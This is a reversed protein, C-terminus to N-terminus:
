ITSFILSDFSYKESLHKQVRNWDVDLRISYAPRLALYDLSYVIGIPSMEGQLAKELVTVGYQDLSVSFAAQNNGYLSPKANQDIKTVFKIKTPDAPPLDGTQAGFLMMKVSGDIVPVPSLRPTDRLRERGQIEGKIQSLKEEEVGINVDFNLFGGNGASGRYKIVQIQPIKQGSTEDVVKSLKPAMPLYYFQLPDAHDRFISVGEIIYFPPELYIM